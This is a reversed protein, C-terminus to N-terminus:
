ITKGKLSGIDKGYVQEAINIDDATIPCNAIANMRIIAKYDHISPTGINNYLKRALKARIIQRATYHSENEAVTNLLSIPGLVKENPKYLYLGNPSRTFKIIKTPLHIIFADEKTSDYTIKHKDKLEAFSFINAISAEDYWVEGFGPVTAKQDTVLEGGNTMLQLPQDVTKISQVMRPNAFISTSSGNDLLITDRLEKTNVQNLMIHAGSWEQLGTIPDSSTTSTVLATTSTNDNVQVHQQLKSMEKKQLKNIYWQEKPTDKKYCKNSSHGKKGCCYCANELQAFSLEMEEETKTSKNSDDNDRSRNATERRKKRVENYKPDWPHEMLVEAAATITKPYQTNKLSQQQALNKIITGYKNSDSNAIFAYATMEEFAIKNYTKEKTADYNEMERVYKTLKIESGLQAKMNDCAAKFREL